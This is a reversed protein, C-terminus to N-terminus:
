RASPTGSEASTTEAPSSYGFEAFIRQAEVTRLFQLYRRAAPNKAGRATIVAAHALPTHWTEPVLTWRGRQKLAPALVLSLAVFGADANGTDVFQATQTINEGFVLRSQVSEWLHFRQLVEKAARGYPATDPNAIALKRVRDSRLATEISTVDLDVSTTWLVLQGTAFEVFSDPVAHGSAVLARPYDLDASLFVDYPAGSRIQAVLSGSAGTAVTLSTHPEAKRFVANLADLVHVLNAAAAVTLKTPAPEKIAEAVQAFAMPAAELAVLLVAALFVKSFDFSLSEM